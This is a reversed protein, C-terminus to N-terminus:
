RKCHAVGAEDCAPECTSWMLLLAVIYLRQEKMALSNMWMCDECSWNGAAARCTESQSAIKM